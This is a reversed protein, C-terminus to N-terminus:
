LTLKFGKSLFDDRKKSCSPRTETEIDHHRLSLLDPPLLSGVCFTAEISHGIRPTKVYSLSGTSLDYWCLKTRNHEFLLSHRDLLLPRLSKLNRSGMSLLNPTFSFLKHWSHPLSYVKLVWIDFFSDRNEVLCLSPGLSSLQMPFHGLVSSPLPLERFSHLSLHFAIILDPQDPQLQRTVLWHLSTSVLVGMTRACCLAYPMSPLSIWSDSKLTYLQVQSDFSRKELDVFYTISVLKYDNSAGDHGFGYVRAAFLSSQPRQFRDSPLIRHKRLFPNWLAIDDAVNSICLLGNCSGLVKISNSYCMLPHSLEVLEQEESQSKLEMSYLHSGQRIILRGHRHSKSLHFQVFQRSDILSRWGKCTARLRVVWKVALRSLIETLVEVPLDRMM